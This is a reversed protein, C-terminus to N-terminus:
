IELPGADRFDPLEGDYGMLRSLFAFNIWTIFLYDRFWNDDQRSSPYTGEHVLSNRIKVIRNCESQTLPVERERAVQRLRQRFSTRYAGQLSNVLNQRIRKSLNVKDLSARVKPFVNDLFEQKAIVESSSTKRAYKSVLLETLSSAMLGRMELYSRDDCANSFQDILSQISMEDLYHGDSHLFAQTLTKFDIKPVMYTTGVRRPAFTLTNSYPATVCSNYIREVIRGSLDDLAEGSYWSVRNGTVLRFLYVLADLFEIFKDLHLSNDRNGKVSISATPEIGHTTALRCSVGVYDNVPEVVVTFEDTTIEMPEPLSSSRRHWLLNSLLFRVSHYCGDAVRNSKASLRSPYFSLENPHPLFPSFIWSAYSYFTEGKTEILHGDMDHGTFSLGDDLAETGQTPSNSLPATPVFSIVLKGSQAQTAHFYGSGQLAAGNDRFSVDGIGTITALPSGHHETSLM